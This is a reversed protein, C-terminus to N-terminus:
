QVHRLMFLVVFKVESSLNKRNAKRRRSTYEARFEEIQMNMDELCTSSKNPYITEVHRFLRKADGFDQRCSKCQFLGLTQSSSPEDLSMTSGGLFLSCNNLILCWNILFGLGLGVYCYAQGRM